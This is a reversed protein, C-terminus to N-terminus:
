RNAAPSHKVVGFWRSPVRVRDVEALHPGWPEIRCEGSGALKQDLLRPLVFHFFDDSNSNLCVEANPPGAQIRTYGREDVQLRMATTPCLEPQLAYSVAMVDFLTPTINNTRASWQHYLLTLADTLPTSRTFLLDRETGDLKLQTSDLPMVYLPVGSAFLKQAATVDSAINYEPDPGHAPLFGLDGYGRHISGGMIVVRKLKRFTAADRDIAASINSLPAIGILTIEGPNRRIQELLFDVADSHQRQVGAKAWAAQSFISKSRTAIGTAIPINQKGTECLLRDLLRSRLATDGWASTIGLIKSEPSSLALGVAFADDIDDGIDTDIIVKQAAAHNHPRVPEQSWCRPALATVVVLAFFLGFSISRYVKAFTRKCSGSCAWLFFIRDVTRWYLYKGREHGDQM